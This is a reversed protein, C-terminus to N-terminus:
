ILLARSTRVLRQGATLACLHRPCEATRGGPSGVEDFLDPGDWLLEAAVLLVEATTLSKTLDAGRSSLQEHDPVTVIFGDSEDSTSPGHEDNGPGSPVGHEHADGDHEGHHHHGCDATGAAHALRHLEAALRAEAVSSSAHLHLRHGDHAHALFTTGGFVGLLFMPVMVAALVCRAWASRM